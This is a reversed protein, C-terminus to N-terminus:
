SGFLPVGLSPETVLFRLHALLPAPSRKSQQSVLPCMPLLCCCRPCYREFPGGARGGCGGGGGGRAARAPPARRVRDTPENGVGTDDAACGWCGRRGAQRGARGGARGTRAQLILTPSSRYLPQIILMVMLWLPALLKMDQGTVSGSIRSIFVRNVTPASATGAADATGGRARQRATAAPVLPPTPPFRPRHSAAWHPLHQPVIQRASLWAAAACGTRRNILRARRRVGRRSRLVEDGAQHAKVLLKSTLPHVPAAPVASSARRRQQQQAAM